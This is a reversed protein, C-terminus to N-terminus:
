LEAPYNAKPNFFFSQMGWPFPKKRIQQYEYKPEALQSSHSLHADTRHDAQMEPEQVDDDDDGVDTASM